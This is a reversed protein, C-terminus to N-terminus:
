CKRTSERAPPGAAAITPFPLMTAWSLINTGTSIGATRRASFQAQRRSSGRVSVGHPNPVPQGNIRLEGGAFSVTEGPLGAVRKVCLQGDDGAFSVRRGGMTSAWPIHLGHSGGAAPRRPTHSGDCPRSWANCGPCGAVEDSDLQELGVAFEQQCADCRFLRRPGSLTPAMSSGAVTVPVVLGMLFWTHAVLAVLGVGVAFRCAAQLSSKPM